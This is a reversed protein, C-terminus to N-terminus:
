IVTRRSTSPTGDIAAAHAGGDRRRDRRKEGVRELPLKDIEATCNM